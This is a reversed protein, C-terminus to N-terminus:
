PFYLFFPRDRNKEIFGLAKEVLKPLVEEHRFDAGTPGKRWFEKEGTNETEHDPLNTVRDNEIYVYPPMDLSASIGFFYDFGLDNPGGEIPQSLDANEAVEFSGDAPPHGESLAWDLGLHWKGVCGTRYGQRKLLSAVTLRDGPILSRSYGGLVGSKLRSRWAYRGTLIGYRTPTCVASGSHADTFRMGQNAMRDINETKLRSEPNLCSVDGYGLDDALIYVINPLTTQARQCTALGFLSSGAGLAELFSRRDLRM